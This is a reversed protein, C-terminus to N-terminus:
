RPGGKYCKYDMVFGGIIRHEYEKCLTRDGIYIYGFFKSPYGDPCEIVTPEIELVNCIGVDGKKVYELYDPMMSLFILLAVLLVTLASNVLWMWNVWDKPLRM